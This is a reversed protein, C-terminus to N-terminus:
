FTLRETRPLIPMIIKGSICDKITTELENWYSKNNDYSFNHEWATHKTYTVKGTDLLEQRYDSSLTDIYAHTINDINNLLAYNDIVNARSVSILKGKFNRLIDDNILNDNGEPSVSVVLCNSSSLKQEISEITSNREIKDINKATVRRAISGHGIFVVKDDENIKDSIWDATSQTFPSTTAVGISRQECENLNINDYGHQRVIIWKLNPMAKYTKDGVKTFQVSLVEVDPDVFDLSDYQGHSEWEYEKLFNSPAFKIDKKDKIIVKPM